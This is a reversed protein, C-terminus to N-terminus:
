EAEKVRNGEFLGSLMMSMMVTLVYMLFLGDMVKINKLEVILNISAFYASLHGLLRSM